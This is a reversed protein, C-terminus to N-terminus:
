PNVARSVEFWLPGNPDWALTMVDHTSSVFPTATLRINGTGGGANRVSVNADAFLIMLRQGYHGADINDLNQAGSATLRIVNNGFHTLTTAGTLNVDLYDYGKNWFIAGSVLQYFNAFNLAMAGHWFFSGATIKVCPFNQPSAVVFQTTGYMHLWSVKGVFAHTANPLASYAACSAFYGDYIAISGPYNTVDGYIDGEGATNSGNNAEFYPTHYRLQVGLINAVAGSKYQGEWSCGFTNRVNKTGYVNYQFHCNYFGEVNGGDISNVGAGGNWMFACTYAAGYYSHVDLRLGDSDFGAIRVNHLEWRLRNKISLGIGNGLAAGGQGPGGTVEAYTGGSLYLDEMKFLSYDDSAMEANIARSGDRATYRLETGTKVGTGQDPLGQGRIILPLKLPPTLTANYQIVGAPLLLVGGLGSAVMAALAASLGAANQTATNSAKVGYRAADFWPLGNRGTYPSPRAVAEM